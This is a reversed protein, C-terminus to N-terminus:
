KSGNVLVRPEDSKLGCRREKGIPAVVFLAVPLPLEKFAQLDFKAELGTAQQNGGGRTPFAITKPEVTVPALVTEGNRGARFVVQKADPGFEALEVSVNITNELMAPTVDSQSFTKYSRKANYAALAIRADPGTITVLFQSNAPSGVFGASARCQVYPLDPTGEKFTLQDRAKSELGLRIAADIRQNSLASQQASATLAVAQLFASVAILLRVTM